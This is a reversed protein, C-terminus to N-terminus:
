RFFTKFAGNFIAFAMLSFLIAMGIYQSIEMFRENPKRKTIIEYVLFVVHGGDLAPIPLLNMLALSMSILGTLAWFHKWDWNGGFAQALEFPGTISKSASIEGKAIKSMGQLSVFVVSLAKKTGILTSKAFGYKVSDLKLLSKPNFGIIGEKTTRLSVNLTDAKRVIVLNVVKDKKLKLCNQLEHFLHIQVSDVKIIKDGIKLGAKIGPKGPELKGIEFPFAPAIFLQQKESDALKELLNNPFKVDIENGDRELTYYSNSTFFIKQDMLDDFYQYDKGNVKLIKDGTKLGIEQAMEYAVIGYKAESKPLFVEGSIYTLVIFITIGLIANVTVGGVMVILRQWAPKSRFEWPKAPEAMQSKDMSEDVMGSIKVFGGLPIAGIGYETDGFKKGFLKPPFGIFFKEVRMGFFKAPLMHGLEHLGVMISLSLILQAAM